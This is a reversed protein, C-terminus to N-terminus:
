RRENNAKKAFGNVIVGLSCMVLGIFQCDTNDTLIYSAVSFVLGIIAIGLSANEIIKGNKM